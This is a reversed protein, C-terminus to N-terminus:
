QQGGALKPLLQRHRTMMKQTLLVEEASIEPAAKTDQRNQSAGGTSNTKQSVSSTAKQSKPASIQPAQRAPTDAPLPLEEVELRSVRRSSVPQAPYRTQDASAAPRPNLQPLARPAVAQPAPARQPVPAAQPAPAVHRVPVVNQASIVGAQGDASSVESAQQEDLANGLSQQLLVLRQQTELLERRIQQLRTADGTMPPCQPPHPVECSPASQPQLAPASQHQLGGSVVHGGPAMQGYVAAAGPVLPARASELHMVADRRYRVLSPFQITPMQLNMEPIRLGFGRVGLSSSEGATEGVAPPAAFTAAPAAQLQVSQPVPASQQFVPPAACHPVMPVACQPDSARSQSLTCASALVGIAWQKRHTFLM